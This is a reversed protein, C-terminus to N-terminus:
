QRLSLTSARLPSPILDATVAEGSRRRREERTARVRKAARAAAKRAGTSNPSRAKSGVPRSICIDGHASSDGDPTRGGTELSVVGGAFASGQFGIRQSAM